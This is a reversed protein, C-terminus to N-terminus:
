EKWILSYDFRRDSNQIYVGRGRLRQITRELNNNAKQINLYKRQKPEHIFFGGYVEEYRVKQDGFNWIYEGRLQELIYLETIIEHVSLKLSVNDPKRKYMKDICDDCNHPDHKLLYKLSKM